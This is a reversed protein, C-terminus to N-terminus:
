RRHRRERKRKKRRKGTGRRPVTRTGAESRRRRKQNPKTQATRESTRKTTPDESIRQSAIVARIRVRSRRPKQGLWRVKATAAWTLFGQQSKTPLQTRHSVKGVHKGM